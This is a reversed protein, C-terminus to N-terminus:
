ELPLCPPYVQRLSCIEPAIKRKFCTEDSIFISYCMSGLKPYCGKNVGGVSCQHHVHKVTCRLQPCSTTISEGPEPHSVNTTSCAALGFVTFVTIILVRSRLINM